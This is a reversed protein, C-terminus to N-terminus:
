KLFRSHAAQKCWEMVTSNALWDEAPALIYNVGLNNKQVFRTVAALNEQQM